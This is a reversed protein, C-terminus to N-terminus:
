RNYAMAYLVDLKKQELGFVSAQQSSSHHAWEIFFLRPLM